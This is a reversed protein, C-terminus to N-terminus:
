ESILYKPKRSIIKPHTDKNKIPFPNIKHVIPKPTSCM